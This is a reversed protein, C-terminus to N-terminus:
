QDQRPRVEAVPPPESPSDPAQDANATPEPATLEAYYLSHMIAVEEEHKHGDIMSRISGKIAFLSMYHHVCFMAVIATATVHHVLAVLNLFRPGGVFLFMMLGTAGMVLGGLTALWFWSKQGINFMHAPVPRKATSLYGGFIRIWGLDHVRPLMVAAWRVLLIPLACVFVIAATGHVTWLRRVFDTGELIERTGPAAAAMMTAGTLILTACALAALLHTIRIAVPFFRFRRGAHSFRRPGVIGYHGAAAGSVLLVLTAVVWFADQGMLTAVGTWAGHRLLEGFVGISSARALLLAVSAFAALSLVSALALRVIRLVRSTSQDLANETM